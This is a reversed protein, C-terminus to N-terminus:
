GESAILPQSKLAHLVLGSAIQASCLPRVRTCTTQMHHELHNRSTTPPAVPARSNQEATDPNITNM